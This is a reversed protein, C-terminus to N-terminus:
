HHGTAEQVVVSCRAQQRPRCPKDNVAQLDSLEQYAHTETNVHKEFVNWAYAWLMHCQRRWAPMVIEKSPTKLEPDCMRWVRPSISQPTPFLFIIGNSHFSCICYTHWSSLLALLTLTGVCFVNYHSFAYALHRIGELTLSACTFVYVASHEQVYKHTGLSEYCWRM